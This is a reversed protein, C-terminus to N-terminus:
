PRRKSRPCFHGRCACLALCASAVPWVSAVLYFSLERWKLGHALWRAGVIPGVVSGVTPRVAGPSFGGAGRLPAVLSRPIQEIKRRTGRSYHFCIVAEIKQIKTIQMRSKRIRENRWTEHHIKCTSNSSSVTQLICHPGSLSGFVMMRGHNSLEPVGRFVM